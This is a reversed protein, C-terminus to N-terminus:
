EADRLRQKARDLSDLAQDLETTRDRVGHPPPHIRGTRPDTWSVGCAHCADRAAVYLLPNEWSTLPQPMGEAVVRTYPGYVMVMDPRTGGLTLAETIADQVTAADAFTEGAQVTLLYCSDGVAYVVAWMSM